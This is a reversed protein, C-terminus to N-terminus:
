WGSCRRCGSSTAAMTTPASSSGRVASTVSRWMRGIFFDGAYRVLFVVVGAVISIVLLNFSQWGEPEAQARMAEALAEAKEKELRAIREAGSECSVGALVCGALVFAVGAGRLRHFVPFGDRGLGPMLIFPSGGDM